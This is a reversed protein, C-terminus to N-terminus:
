LEFDRGNMAMFIETDELTYTVREINPPSEMLGIAPCYKAIGPFSGERDGAEDLSIMDFADMASEVTASGLRLRLSMKQYCSWIRRKSPGDLFPFPIPPCICQTLTGKGSNKHRSCNKVPIDIRFLFHIISDEDLCDKVIRDITSPNDIQKLEQLLTCEETGNRPIMREGDGTIEVYDDDLSNSESRTWEVDADSRRGEGDSSNNSSNIIRLISDYSAPLGLQVRILEAARRFIQFQETTNVPSILILSLKTTLDLCQTYAYLFGSSNFRPLCMPIWLESSYLGPQRSVFNLILHLDSVRIQLARFAPQVLSLLRDGVVLLAFATNETKDGITQLIRSARERVSNTIPFVTQVGSVLFPGASGYPGCDDLIGHILNDSSTLMSRLDFGPNHQFVSQVQETLTFILQAFVYELQLRLFAETEIVGNEEARAIAVLTIAGVSMFVMSLRGSWLSQIEGLHFAKNGMVSTRIAQCLGCLRAIDEEMGRRAFIPKGAESMVIVNVNM